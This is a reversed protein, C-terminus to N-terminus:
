GITITADKVQGPLKRGKRKKSYDEEAKVKIPDIGGREAARRESLEKSRDMLDGLTGPKATKELWQRESNPDIKTDIAIQPNLWVRSWKVGNCSYTHEDNMGQLIEVVEEPDEPNSYSYLPMNGLFLFNLLGM